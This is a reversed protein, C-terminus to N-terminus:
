LTENRLDLVFSLLHSLGLNFHQVHSLFGYTPNYGFIVIMVNNVLTATHGVTAIPCCFDSNTLSRGSIQVWDENLLDFEWLQQTITGNRLMGGYVFLKHNFVIASHGFRSEPENHRHLSDWKKLKMYYKVLFAENNDFHEGGLIYMTDQYIATQHLARGKPKNSSSVFTWYGQSMEQSCDAGIYGFYCVCKHLSKDCEGRGSCSNPCISLECADGQFEADCTCRDGVCVGNNSCNRPCSNISYTLNFGSMNFAADSYFYLYARGSQATIEPITSSFKGDKVLSGSLTAIMPSYISDGDFIYLHDWSCETEFYNFELRITANETASDILWTCQLDSSYNGHGDTIYGFPDTFRIPRFFLIIVVGPCNFILNYVCVQHSRRMPRLKCRAMWLRVRM